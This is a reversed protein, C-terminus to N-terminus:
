RPPIDELGFAGLGEKPANTWISTRTNENFNGFIQTMAKEADWSGKDEPQRAPVVVLPLDVHLKLESPCGTRTSVMSIEGYMDTRGLWTNITLADTRIVYEGSERLRNSADHQWPQLNRYDSEYEQKSVLRIVDGSLGVQTGSVKGSVELHIPCDQGLGRIEIM